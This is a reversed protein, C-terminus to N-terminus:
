EYSNEIEEIVRKKIEKYEEKLLFNKLFYQDVKKVFTSSHSENFGGNQIFIDKNFDRLAKAFVDDVTSRYNASKSLQEIARTNILDFDNKDLAASPQLTIFDIVIEFKVMEPDDYNMNANKIWDFVNQHSPVEYIYNKAPKPLEVNRKLEEFNHFYSPWKKVEKNINECTTKVQKQFLRNSKDKAAKTSSQYMVYMAKRSISLKILSQMIARTTRICDESLSDPMKFLNKGTSAAPISYFLFGRYGDDSLELLAQNLKENLTPELPKSLTLGFHIFCVFLVSYGLLTIM